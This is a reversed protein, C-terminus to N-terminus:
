LFSKSADPLDVSGRAYLTVVFQKNRYMGTTYCPTKTGPFRRVNVPAATSRSRHFAAEVDPMVKNMGVIVIVQKPGFTLAAVRNGNGDINVLQGDETAANTGM